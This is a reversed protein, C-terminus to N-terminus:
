KSEKSKQFRRAASLLPRDQDAHNPLSWWKEAARVLARLEPTCGYKHRLLRAREGDPALDCVRCCKASM